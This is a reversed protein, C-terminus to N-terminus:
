FRFTFRSSGGGISFGRSRHAGYGYGSHRPRSSYGGWGGLSPRNVVVPASHFATRLSRLDEQLHHINEEIAKLLYRVHSTGGHTHGHGWAAGREIGVFVSELHHFTSDLGELDAELHEVSGHHHALEHVHDALRALERTDSILHRYEPTHRYHRSERVFEKTQQSIALAVEDIHHYTDASASGSLSAVFLGFAALTKSLTAMKKNGENLLSGTSFRRQWRM